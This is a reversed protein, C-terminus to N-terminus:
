KIHLLVLGMNWSDKIDFSIVKFWAKKKAALEKQCHELLKARRVNRKGTQELVAEFYQDPTMKKSILFEEVERMRQKYTRGRKKLKQFDWEKSKKETEVRDELKEAVDINQCLQEIQQIKEQNKESLNEKEIEKLRVRMERLQKNVKKQKQQLRKEDQKFQKMEEEREEREKQTEKEKEKEEEKEEEDWEWGWGWGKCQIIKEVEREKEWGCKWELQEKQNEEREGERGGEGRWRGERQGGEGGQDEEREGGQEGESSLTVAEGKESGQEGESSLAV